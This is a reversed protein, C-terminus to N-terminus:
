KGSDPLEFPGPLIEPEKPKFILYLVGSVLLAAGAIQVSLPIKRKANFTSTYYPIGDANWIRARYAESRSLTNPLVLQWKDKKKKLQGQSIIQRNEDIVHYRPTGNLEPNELLIKATRRYKDKPLFIDAKPPLTDKTLAIQMSDAYQSLERAIKWVFTKNMGAAIDEGIDGQVEYIRVKQGTSDLYYPTVRFLLGPETAQLDYQVKIYNKTKEVIRLSDSIAQSQAPVSCVLMYFILFHGLYHM